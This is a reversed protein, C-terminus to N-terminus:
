DLHLFVGQNYWCFQLWYAGKVGEAPVFIVCRINLSVPGWTKYWLLLLLVALLNGQYPGHTSSPLSLSVENTHLGRRQGSLWLNSYLHTGLTTNTVQSGAVSFSQRSWQKEMNSSVELLSTALYVPQCPWSLPLSNWSICWVLPCNFDSDSACQVKIMNTNRVPGHAQLRASGRLHSTNGTLKRIRIQQKM